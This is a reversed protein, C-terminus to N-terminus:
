SSPTVSITLLADASEAGKDDIAKATLNKAGVGTTEWTFSYPADTLTAIQDTEYFILLSDVTGDSDNASLELTIQTGETFTSEPQPSSWSVTPISNESEVFIQVGMSINELGDNDFVKAVLNHSGLGPNELTFDFPPSKVEALLQNGQYFEVRDVTGDPDQAQVSIVIKSDEKFTSMAQPSVISITPKQKQHEKIHFTVPSSYSYRNQNDWAKAVLLYTGDPVNKWTHSFPSNFSEGIKIIGLFWEVQQISGDPDSVQVTLNLDKGAEFEENTKPSTITVTPPLNPPPVVSATVGKSEIQNGRVDFVRAVLFHPGESPQNLVYEFPPNLCEAIVTNFDLFEVKQVNSEPGDIKAKVLISDGLGFKEGSGPSILSVATEEYVKISVPISVVIQGSTRVAKATFVYDGPNLVPLNLYYPESASEGIKNVGNWFEIKSISESPFNPVAIVTLPSGAKLSANPIPSTITVTQDGTVTAETNTQDSSSDPNSTSEPPVYNGTLIGNASAEIEEQIPATLFINESVSATSLSFADEIKHILPSLLESYSAAIELPNKQLKEGLLVAATTQPSIIIFSTAKTKAKLGVKDWFVEILYDSNGGPVETVVFNLSTPAELFSIPCSLGNVVAKGTLYPSTSTTTTATATTTTSASASATASATDSDTDSAIQSFLGQNTRIPLFISGSLKPPSSTSISNTTSSSSGTGTVGNSTCGTLAFALFITTLFLILKRNSM